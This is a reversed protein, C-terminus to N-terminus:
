PLFRAQLAMDVLETKTAALDVDHIGKMKLIRKLQAMNCQTLMTNYHHYLIGVLESKQMSKNYAHGSDKTHLIDLLRYIDPRSLPTYNTTDWVLANISAKAKRTGTINMQLADHIKVFNEDEKYWSCLAYGLGLVAVAGIGIIVQM